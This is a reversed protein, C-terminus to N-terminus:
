AQRRPITSGALAGVVAAALAPQALAALGCAGALGVAWWAVVKWGNQPAPM